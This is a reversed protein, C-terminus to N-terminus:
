SVEMDEVPPLGPELCRGRTAQEKSPESVAPVGAIDAEIEAIVVTRGAPLSRQRRLRFSLLALGVPVVAWVLLTAVLLAATGARSLEAVLLAGAPGLLYLDPELALVVLVRAADVPNAVLLLALATSSLGSTVLTGMLLLDYMLVFLFWCFIARGQAQVGGHSRVSILLGLGLMAGILFISLLPFLVYGLLSAAGAYRAVVFAAPLFGVVTAAALALLLGLYKGLLLDRRELPQALLTEMTGRDREGAIAAAGMSLGVLPALMLCLNTLTATTRGFMQLGMGASSRLGLLAAVVGLAGLLLAYTILWRDHLADRMGKRALQRVASPPHARGPGAPRPAPAGRAKGPPYGVGGSRPSPAVRLGAPAPRRVDVIRGAELTIARDALGELQSESHTSLLIAKGDDALRRLREGVALRSAADLSATPEDLLLVPPDSLCALAFSLRQLMGGSLEAVRADLADSLGVGALLEHGRAGDVGRLASYFDVTEAVTLDGHLGGGQPMYGICGRVRTGDVLPDLGAVRIEGHYSLIGLISRVLTSKGAGNAGLLLVLEGPAVSLSVDRLAAVAGYFKSVEYIEIM